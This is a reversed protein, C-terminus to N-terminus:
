EMKTLLGLKTLFAQHQDMGVMEAIKVTAINSSYRFIEPVSLPRNRGHFDKITFGGMRLPRSADVVSDLNIEGADLGMALTFSKFTSGMEFTANSMRNFW